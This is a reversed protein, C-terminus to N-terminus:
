PKLRKRKKICEKPIHIPCDFSNTGVSHTPSVVVKTPTEFVLHGVTIIKGVEYGEIETKDCWGNQSVSDIWEIRVIPLGAM